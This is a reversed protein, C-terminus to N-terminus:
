DELLFPFIICVNHQLFNQILQFETNHLLILVLIVSKQNLTGFNQELSQQKGSRSFAHTQKMVQLFTSVDKIVQHLLLKFPSPIVTIYEM